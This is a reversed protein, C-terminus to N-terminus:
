GEELVSWSIGAKKLAKKINVAAVEPWTSESFSLKKANLKQLCNVVDKGSAKEDKLYYILLSAQGLRAKNPILIFDGEQMRKRKVLKSIQGHLRWDFYGLTGEMSASLSQKNEKSYAALIWPERCKELVRDLQKIDKYALQAM